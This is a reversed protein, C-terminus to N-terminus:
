NRTPLEDRASYEREASHRSLIKQPMSAAHVFLFRDADGGMNSSASRKSVAPRGSQNGTLSTAGAALARMVFGGIRKDCVPNM